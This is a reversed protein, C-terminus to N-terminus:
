EIAFLYKFYKYNNVNKSFLSNFKTIFWVIVKYTREYIMLYLKNTENM